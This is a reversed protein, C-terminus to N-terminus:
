PQNKYVFTFHRAMSASAFVGKGNEISGLRYNFRPNQGFNTQRFWNAWNVDPAYIRLEQRGFWKFATWIVPSQTVARIGARVPENFRPLQAEFFREIRRNRENTPPRLYKGYELTDLCLTSFIYDTVGPVPTWAILLSDPSPLLTTDKPYWLTDKPPRTWRIQAPSTTTGGLTLAEGKLNRLNIELRYRTSPKVRLNSAAKYTHTTSDFQLVIPVDNEFIRVTANTVAASDLSFASTIPLSRMVRIDEIPEGVILLAQVAYDEIYDNISPSGFFDGFGAEQCSTLSFVCFFVLLMKSFVISKTARKASLFTQAVSPAFAHTRTTQPPTHHIM